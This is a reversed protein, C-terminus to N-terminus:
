RGVKIMSQAKIGLALISLLLVITAFWDPFGAYLSFATATAIILGQWEWGRFYLLGAIGYLAIWLIVWSGLNLAFIERCDAGYKTADEICGYPCNIPESCRLKYTTEGDSLKTENRCVRLTNSNVCEGYEPLAIVTIVTLQIAITMAMLAIIMKKKM